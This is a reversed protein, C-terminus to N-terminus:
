DNGTKTAKFSKRWNGMISSISVNAEALVPAQRPVRSEPQTQGSVPPAESASSPRTQGIPMGNVTPGGAAPAPAPPAMSSVPQEQGDSQLATLAALVSAPIPENHFPTADPAVVALEVAIRDIGVAAAQADPKADAGDGNTFPDRDDDGVDPTDDVELDLKQMDLTDLVPHSNSFPDAELAELLQRLALAEQFSLIVSKQKSAGEFIRHRIKSSETAELGRGEDSFQCGCQRCRFHNVRGLSGLHQLESGCMSCQLPEDFEADRHAGTDDHFAEVKKPHTLLGAVTTDHEIKSSPLTKKPDKLLDALLSM